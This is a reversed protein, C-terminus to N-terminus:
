STTAAAPAFVPHLGRERQLLGEVAMVYALAEPFEAARERSSTSASYPGGSYTGYFLLAVAARRREEAPRVLFERLVATASDTERHALHRPRNGRVFYYVGAVFVAAMVAVVFRKAGLGVQRDGLLPPLGFFLLVALLMLPCGCASVNAPAQRQALLDWEALVAQREVTDLTEM